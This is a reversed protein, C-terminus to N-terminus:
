KKAPMAALEGLATRIEDASVQVAIAAAANGVLQEPTVARLVRRNGNQQLYVVPRFTGDGPALTARGNQVTFSRSARLSAVSGGGTATRYDPGKTADVDRLAGHLTVGDPLPPLDAFTLELSPWAQLRVTTVDDSATAQVPRYGARLVQLEVPGLPTVIEVEDGAAAFGTWHEPDAQPLVFVL